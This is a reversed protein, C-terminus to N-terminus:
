VVWYQRATLIATMDICRDCGIRYLANPRVRTVYIVISIAWDIGETIPGWDTLPRICETSGGFPTVVSWWASGKSGMCYFINVHPPDDESWKKNEIAKKLM